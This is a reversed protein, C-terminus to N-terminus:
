LKLFDFLFHSPEQVYNRQTLALICKEANLTGYFYNEVPFNEWFNSSSFHTTRFLSFVFCQRNASRVIFRFLSVLVIHLQRGRVTSHTIVIRKYAYGQKRQKKIRELLCLLALSLFLSFLFCVLNAYIFNRFETSNTCDNMAFCFTSPLLFVINNNCTRSFITLKISIGIFDTVLLHIETNSMNFHKQM